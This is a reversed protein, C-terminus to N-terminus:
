LTEIISLLSFIMGQGGNDMSRPYQAACLPQAPAYREMKNPTLLATSMKHRAVTDAVAACGAQKRVSGALGV